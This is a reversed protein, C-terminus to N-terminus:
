VDHNTKLLGKLISAQMAFIFRGLVPRVIMVGETGRGGRELIKLTQHPHDAVQCLLLSSGTDGGMAPDIVLCWGGDTALIDKILPSRSSVTPQLLQSFAQPCPDLIRSEHFFIGAADLLPHEIMELSNFDGPIFRRLIALVRSERKPDYARKASM